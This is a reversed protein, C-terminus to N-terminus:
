YVGGVRSPTTFRDMPTQDRQALQKAATICGTKGRPLWSELEATGLKLNLLWM